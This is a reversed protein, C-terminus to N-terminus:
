YVKEEVFGFTFEFIENLEDLSKKSLVKKWNEGFAKNVPIWGYNYIIDEQENLWNEKVLFKIIKKPKSVIGIFGHCEEYICIVKKM